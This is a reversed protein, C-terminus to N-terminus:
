RIFDNGKIMMLGDPYRKKWAHYISDFLVDNKSSEKVDDWLATSIGRCTCVPNNENKHTLLLYDGDVLSQLGEIFMPAYCQDFYCVTPGNGLWQALHAALLPRDKLMMCPLGEPNKNNILLSGHGTLYLVDLKGNNEKIEVLASEIDKLKPITDKEGLTIIRDLGYCELAAKAKRMNLQHRDSPDNNVLLAYRLSKSDPSLSVVRSQGYSFDTIVIACLSVIAFIPKRIASKLLGPQPM